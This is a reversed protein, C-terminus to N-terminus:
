ADRKLRFDFDIRYFPPQLKRELGRTDDATGNKKMELVLGKRVGFVADQELYEDDACFLETTLPRHGAASVIFHFHAPRWAHRGGTRLLDGVPGDYPV